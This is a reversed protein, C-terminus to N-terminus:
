VTKMEFEVTRSAGVEIKFDSWDLGQTVLWCGVANGPLANIRFDPLRKDPYVLEIGWQLLRKNLIRNGTAVLALARALTMRPEDKYTVPMALLAGWQKGKERPVVVDKNIVVHRLAPMPTVAISQKIVKIAVEPKVNFLETGALYHLGMAKLRIHVLNETYRSDPTPFAREVEWKVKRDVGTFQKAREFPSQAHTEGIKRVGDPMQVSTCIYVYEPCQARISGAAANQTTKMM